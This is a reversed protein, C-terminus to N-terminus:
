ENKEKEDDLKLPTGNELSKKFSDIAKKIEKVQDAIEPDHQINAPDVETPQDLIEGQENIVGYKKLLQKKEEMSLGTNLYFMGRRTNVLIDQILFTKAKCHGCIFYYGNKLIKKILEPYLWTTISAETMIHNIKKCNSCPVDIEIIRTM